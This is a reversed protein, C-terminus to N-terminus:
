QRGGRGGGRGFFRLTSTDFPEGMMETLKAVQDETLKAKAREDMEKRLEAMKERRAEPDDGGGQFLEQMADRQEQRLDDFQDKQEQTLELKAAVEERSVSGLVGGAQYSIQQLRANQKEDLVGEVDKDLKAITEAFNGGGGGGGFQPMEARIEELKTKQEDTLALEKEVSEQGVLMVKAMGRGFGRGGGRQAQVDSAFAVLSIGALAVLVLQIKRM